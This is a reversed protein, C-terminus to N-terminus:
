RQGALVSTDKGPNTPSLAPWRFAVMGHGVPGMVPKDNMTYSRLRLKVM